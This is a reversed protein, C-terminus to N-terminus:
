ELLIILPRDDFITPRNPGPEGRHKFRHHFRCLAQGNRIITSGGHEHPEVHDYECRSIATRCGAHKCHNDRLRILRKQVATFHRGAPRDNAINGDTDVEHETVKAAKARMESVITPPILTGRATRPWGIASFGRDFPDPFSSPIEEADGRDHHTLSGRGEPVLVELRARYKGDPNLVLEVIARGLTESPKAGRERQTTANGEITDIFPEAHEPGVTGSYHANGFLDFGYQFHQKALNAIYEDLAADEDALCRWQALHDAFEEPTCLEALEVLQQECTNFQHKDIKKWAPHLVEIHGPGIRGELLAIYFRPYRDPATGLLNLAAGQRRSMGCESNALGSMTHAGKTLSAANADAYAMFRAGVTRARDSARVMELSHEALQETSFETTDIHALRLLTAAAVDAVAREAALPGTFKHEGASSVM